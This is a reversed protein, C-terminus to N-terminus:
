SEDIHIGYKAAVSAAKVAGAAKRRNTGQSSSSGYSVAESGAKTLNEHTRQRESADQGLDRTSM